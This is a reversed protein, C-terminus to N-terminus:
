EDMDSWDLRADNVLQHCIGHKDRVRTVSSLPSSDVPLSAAQALTQNIRTTSNVPYMDCTDVVGQFVDEQLQDFTGPPVTDRSFNRLSEAHYFSERQRHFHKNVQEDMDLIALDLHDEVDGVVGSYVGLLHRVYRYETTVTDAPPIEPEPRVGLGGGFRVAHFPTTAHQEIMEVLSTSDFISFDFENFYDLLNGALQVTTTSTIETECCQTWNEKAENKLKDPDALLKGLKTGIQKPAVFYYARPPPYEELYSFYIIKGIEVWIDSPRLPHDYYKCQYCEWGGSFNASSIFGVVDLGQDGSGAFRKVTPYKSKLSSAWEQTFEEWADSDFLQVRRTKPIPIGTSVHESSYLGQSPNPSLDVLDDEIM